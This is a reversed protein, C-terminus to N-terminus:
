RPDLGTVAGTPASRAEPEVEAGTDALARGTRQRQRRFRRGAFVLAGAMLALVVLGIAIDVPGVVAVDSTQDGSITLTENAGFGPAHVKVRYQGAPLDTAIVSGHRLVLHQTAGEGLQIDIASGTTWHFLADRARFEVTFLRLAVRVRAGTAPVFRQEGSTVVNAGGVTVSTLRYEVNKATVTGGASVVSRGRLWVPPAGRTDITVGLTSKIQMASVRRADVPLDHSDVFAFSTLYDVDFAATEIQSSRDSSSFHYGEEYWGHFRARAGNPLVLLRTSMTLHANRDAVLAARQEKTLTTHITGDRGTSRAVGNLVVKVGAMPPVTRITLPRLGALPDTPARTPAAAAVAPTVLAPTCMALGAVVAVAVRALSRTRANM